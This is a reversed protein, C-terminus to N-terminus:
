TEARRGHVNVMRAFLTALPVAAAIRDLWAKHFINTPYMRDIVISEPLSAVVDRQSLREYTIAGEAFVGRIDGRLYNKVNLNSFSLFLRGDPVLVRQVEGFLLQRLSRSELHQLVDSAVVAGISQPACAMQTIDDCIFTVNAAHELNQTRNLRLSEISFDVAIVHFGAELLLSTTPGPGSGLDLAPYRRLAEPLSAIWEKFRAIQTPFKAHKLYDPAERDRADAERSPVLGVRRLVGDISVYRTGGCKCSVASEPEPGAVLGSRCRCCVMAM